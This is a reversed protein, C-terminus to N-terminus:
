NGVLTLMPPTFFVLGVVIVPLTTTFVMRQTIKTAEQRRRVAHANRLENVRARFAGVLAGGEEQLRAIDAVDALQPLNLREAARRLEAWPQERELEARTLAARIQRFLPNDSVGAARTLADKAHQNAMRELIVLDVYVLLAEEADDSTARATSTIRLAPLFWGLAFAVLAAGAPLPLSLPLGLAGALGSLLVVILACLLAATLREGYFRATSVGRLRLQAAQQGSPTLRLTRMLWSGARDMTGRGTPETAGEGAGTAGARHPDLNAMASRLSPLPHRRLALAAAGVAAVCLFGFALAAAAISVTM